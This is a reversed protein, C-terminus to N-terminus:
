PAAPPPLAPTKSPPLKPPLPKGDPGLSPPGAQPLAPTEKEILDREETPDREQTAIEGRQLNDYLTDYSIGGSQWVQVLALADQPTMRVDIFELSPEVICAKPDAGILLAANRLARELGAASARAVDVLSSSESSYRLRLAEGSEARSGANNQQFLRAGEAIAVLREDAIAIRHADIGKGSPGVYFCKSEPAELGIIVGAGVTKPLIDPDVGSFVLTEQGTNFLQHRYDADLRYIALATRGVGIMPPEDPIDRIDRSGVVVMPLFNLNTGKPTTPTAEDVQALSEKTRDVNGIPIPADPIDYSGIGSAPVGAVIPGLPISDQPGYEFIVQRYIGNALELVRYRRHNVWAFGERRLRTEDLVYLDHFYESWNRISEATYGVLYVDGGEKAVDALVGYRGQLIIESTIQAHFADLTLNDPTAKERMFELQPPLQITAPIRHIIGLIGQVTPRVIDPFQARAIYADYMHCGQDPQMKFGEPMPLFIERAAKIAQDGRLTSRLM